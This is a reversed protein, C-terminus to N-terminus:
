SSNYGVDVIIHISGSVSLNYVVLYWLGGYLNVYPPDAIAGASSFANRKNQLIIENFFKGNSELYLSAPTLNSYATLSISRITTVSGVDITYNFTAGKSLSFNKNLVATTQGNYGGPPPPSNSNVPQNKLTNVYAYTFILSVMIVAIIVVTKGNM